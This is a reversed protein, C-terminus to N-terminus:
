IQHYNLPIPLEITSTPSTLSSQHYIFPTSSKTEVTLAAFTDKLSIIVDDVSGSYDM